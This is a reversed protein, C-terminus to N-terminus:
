HISLALAYFIMTIFSCWFAGMSYAVSKCPSYFDGLARRYAYGIAVDLSLWPIATVVWHFITFLFSTNGTVFTLFYNLFFYLIIAWFYWCFETVFVVLNKICNAIHVKSADQPVGLFSISEKLVWCIVLSIIPYTSIWFAYRITSLYTDTSIDKSFSLVAAVFAFEAAGLVTIIVLAINFLDDLRRREKESMDNPPPPPPLPPEPLPLKESM